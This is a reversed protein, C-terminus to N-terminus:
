KRSNQLMKKHGVYGFSILSLMLLIIQKKVTQTLFEFFYYNKREPCNM